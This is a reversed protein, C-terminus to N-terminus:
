PTAKELLPLTTPDLSPHMDEDDPHEEIPCTEKDLSEERDLNNDFCIEIHDIEEDM